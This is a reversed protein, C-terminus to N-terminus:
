PPTPPSMPGSRPRFWPGAAVTQPQAPEEMYHPSMIAVGNENFVDQINAHLQSMAEARRHPASRSGQACLRYEVYFDSLATQVVYPAPQELVGPTRRAAELLMVHVQRWPTAYGITVSTHLVFQGGEVLRSFNRVPQSFVVANPLSVEEGHGTHLKTAFMGLATVTGEVEGIRVYEGVRLSRSYMLSLGSMVQGVVGSAGLSVMLGALVTVGKFAESSAGPLYPYAMALAFLWVVLSALRATPGATDADLGGLSLEGQEVRELVAHLLRVAGRSLLFILVATVLGPVASAAAGALAALQELLWDGAREGWPRTYAFQRLVVTAWLDLVLLAVAWSALGALGRLLAIAHEGTAQWWRPARGGVEVHDAGVPSDVGALRRVLRRLLLRRLQGLGKLLALAVATALVSLAAARMWAGLDRTERAEAFARQLRRELDASAVELMVDPQAGGLDDPVLHVVAQGNALVRVAPPEGPLVQREIRDPVSAALAAQLAREAAEVREAPSEGKLTARLVVLKRQNLALTAEDAHAAVGSLSSLLMLGVRLHM